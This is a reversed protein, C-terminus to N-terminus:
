SRDRPSPSTYLLCSISNKSKKQAIQSKWVLLPEDEKSIIDRKILGAKEAEELKEIIFDLRNEKGTIEKLQDALQNVTIEDKRNTQNIIKLILEEKKQLSLKNLLTLNSKKEQQRKITQYIVIVVILGTPIPLLLHGNKAINLSISSWTKIPNWYNTIAKGFSLLIEQTEPIEEPGEPYTILSIKVYKQQSNSETNFIASDYWYLVAQTINSDTPQFVFYKAM